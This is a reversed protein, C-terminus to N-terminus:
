GELDMEIEIKRREEDREFYELASGKEYSDILEKTNDLAAELKARGSALVKQAYKTNNIMEGMEKQITKLYKELDTKLSPDQNKLRPYFEEVTSVKEYVRNIFCAKSEMFEATKTFETPYIQFVRHYFNDISQKLGSEEDLLSISVKVEELIEEMKELIVKIDKSYASYFSFPAEQDRWNPSLSQPTKMRLFAGYIIHAQEKKSYKGQVLSLPSDLIGIKEVYRLYKITASVLVKLEHIFYGYAKDVEDQAPTDTFYAKSYNAREEAQKISEVLDVMNVKAM